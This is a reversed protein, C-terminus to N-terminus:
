VGRDSGGERLVRELFYIGFSLIFILDM